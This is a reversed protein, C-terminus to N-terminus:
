LWQQHLLTWKVVREITVVFDLPAHWGMAAMKRGDLAYRLDHGPRSSHFDVLEYHLKCEMIEAIIQALSLNDLEQSGVINYKDGATGHEIIFQVANAVNRAHIYCRSGAETKDANAHITVLEGRLVKGIVLPIFKEKHQREGFVNMCHSVRIDLKYTNAYAICLEEGGAKSAAYPNGSRYRDWEGYAKGDPAPGFVEDTSFYIMWPPLEANRVYELVNATGVVNDLVFEMPNTISRDVHTSAGLHLVGDVRGIAIAVAENIPAKLDHYVWTLRSMIPRLKLSQRQLETLMEHLRNLNGSVDLRDLLVLEWDTTKLLQEVLHHGIFGAGGTILVRTTAM